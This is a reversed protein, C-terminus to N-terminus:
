EHPESNAAVQGRRLLYIDMIWGHEERASARRQIIQNSLQDLPGHLLVENPMGLYAGWWIETGDMPLTQFSCNGDLMVAVTGADKPWGEDRLRRGTTILVPAGIENLPIAHAATLAQLATIGPIVKIRPEPELRAAIRLSSDYLSPDGWILLAVRKPGQGREGIAEEWAHAIADHWDDVTQRYEGEKARVPLDFEVLRARAEAGLVRACIDWRIDALDLKESGKKPILILDADQIAKEGARTLHDPNGTGIGILILEIM